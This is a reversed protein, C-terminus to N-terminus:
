PAAVRPAPSVEALHGPLDLAPSRGARELDWVASWAGSRRELLLWNREALFRRRAGPLPKLSIPHRALPAEGLAGLAGLARAFGPSPPPHSIGSAILQHLVTGAPTRMEARGALHIEGSLFTVPGSADAHRAALRLFRRWEARHARSQWQDRLDDEYRQAGPILRHLGELLSLRPGLAPVSSVVFIPEGYPTGAFAAETAAWGADGMVRTPRRESRLDPAIVRFGPQSLCWSLTGPDQAEDWPWRGGAHFLRFFRRAIRFIMQGLPSEQVPGPHSGYGDFIDHDDWMAAVPVRAMLHAAAPATVSRVWRDLFVATATQEAEPTAPLHVAEGRWGEAWRELDPHSNLAADAYIQDGGMLLLSLPAAAHAAKLRDWMAEREDPPRDFDGDEKGNCSVFAVRLDEQPGGLHVPFSRDGYSYTGGAAPLSFDYRYFALGLFRDVEIAPITRDEVRLPPPAAGKPLAVLASLGHRATQPDFGRAYLLPGLASPSSSDQQIPSSSATMLAWIPDDLAPEWPDSRM